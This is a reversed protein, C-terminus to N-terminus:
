NFYKKIPCAWDASPGSLQCEGVDYDDYWSFLPCARCRCTELDEYCPDEFYDPPTFDDEFWMEVMIKKM